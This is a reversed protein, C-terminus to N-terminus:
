GGNEDKKVNTTQIVESPGNQPLPALRGLRFASRYCALSMGSDEREGSACVGQVTFKTRNLYYMIKQVSTKKTTLKSMGAMRTNLFLHFTLVRIAGSDYFCSNTVVSITFLM